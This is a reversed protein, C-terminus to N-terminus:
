TSARLEGQAKESALKKVKEGISRAMEVLPRLNQEVIITFLEVAEALGLEEVWAKANDLDEFNERKVTHTLVAVIDDYHENILASLDQRLFMAVDLGGKASGIVKELITGLRAMMECSTKLNWKVVTLDKGDITVERKKAKLAEALRDPKQKKGPKGAGTKKSDGV